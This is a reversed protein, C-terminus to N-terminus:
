LGAPVEMCAPYLRLGESFFQPMDGLRGGLFSSTNEQFFIVIKTFFVKSSSAARPIQSGAFQCAKLLRLCLGKENSTKKPATQKSGEVPFPEARIRRVTLRL